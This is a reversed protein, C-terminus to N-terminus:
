IPVLSVLNEQYCTKAADSLWPSMDQFLAFLGKGHQQKFAESDLVLEMENTVTLECFDKAQTPTLRFVEETFRDRFQIADLGINSFTCMRACSCYLYVLIEADEGIITAIKDRM